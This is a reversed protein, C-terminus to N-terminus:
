SFVHYVLTDVKDVFIRFFKLFDGWFHPPGKPRGSQGLLSGSPGFVPIERYVPLDIPNM